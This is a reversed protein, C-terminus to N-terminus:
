QTSIVNRPLFQSALSFSCSPESFGLNSSSCDGFFRTKEDSSLKSYILPQAATLTINFSQVTRWDRNGPMYAGNPNLNDEMVNGPFRAQVQFNNLKNALPRPASLASPSNANVGRNVQLQMIFEGPRNTDPTLSYNREEIIYVHSTNANYSNAWTGSRNILYQTAAGTGFTSDGTYVFFEGRKAADTATAATDFIYAVLPFPPNPASFADRGTQWNTIRTPIPDGTGVVAFNSGEAVPQDITLDESILKRQISLTDPEVNKDGNVLSFTPVLLNTGLLEGGQRIDNGIIDTIGRLNQNLIGRAQDIELSRRQQVIVSLSFALIVSSILGAVLMEFLSFGKSSHRTFHKLPTSIKAM